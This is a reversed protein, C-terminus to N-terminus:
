VAHTTEFVVWRMALAGALAAPIGIISAISVAIFVIFLIGAPYLFIVILFPASLLLSVWKMMNFAVTFVSGCDHDQQYIYIAGFGAALTSPIAVYWYMPVANFDNLVLAFPLWLLLSPNLPGALITGLWIYILRPERKRLPNLIVRPESRKGRWPEYDEVNLVAGNPGFVPQKVDSM